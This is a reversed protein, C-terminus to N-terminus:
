NKPVNANRGALLVSISYAVDPTLGEVVKAAAEPRMRGLFGAAFVPSMTEFLLAAEKPKMSEYVATLRALDDEAANVALALTSELRAEAQELMGLQREIQTEADAMAVSRKAFHDEREALRSERTALADLVAAVDPPTECRLSDGPVAKESRIDSVEKAIATAPGGLFRLLGSVFLLIALVSLPGLSQGITKRRFFKM